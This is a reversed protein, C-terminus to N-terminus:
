AVMACSRASQIENKMGKRWIDPAEYETNPEMGTGNVPQGRPKRWSFAPVVDHFLGQDGRL